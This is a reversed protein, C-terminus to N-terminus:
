TPSFVRVMPIDQGGPLTYQHGAPAGDPRVGQHASGEGPTQRLREHVAHVAGGDAHAPESVVARYDGVLTAFYFFNNVHHSCM